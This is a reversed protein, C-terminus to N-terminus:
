LSLIKLAFTRIFFAIIVVLGLITFPGNRLDKGIYKPHTNMVLLMCALLPIFLSGFVSYYKQAQKFSIFLGAIPVTTLLILYYRYPKDTHEIEKEPTPQRSLTRWFDTFLYPVSQWVGLLSSFMAAWAGILFLWKATPNAAAEISHALNVLLDAGKGQTTLRSGIIVVALGFLATLSYSVILDIRCIKLDQPTSRKNERIWYGYCLVTLTGGVGGILGITWDVGQPSYSPISWIFLGRFIDNLNPSMMAATVIVTAFMVSVCYKMIKEFKDYGGKWVLIFCLFSHLIGLIIKGKTFDSFLSLVANSAVGCASMLAAGVFFSWLLIYILFFLQIPKGFHHIAGSLLTTGSALQWKALGETVIYKFIAGIVVAWLIGTGLQSGAFAGTALDGAGVGTAAVIMGPAIIKPLDRLKNQM